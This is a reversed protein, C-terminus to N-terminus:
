LMVCYQCQCVMVVVLAHWRVCSVVCLWVNVAICQIGVM